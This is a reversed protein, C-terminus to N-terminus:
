GFASHGGLWCKPHAMSLGAWGAAGSRVHIIMIMMMMTMMLRILQVTHAQFFRRNKRTTFSM